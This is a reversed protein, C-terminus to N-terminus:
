LNEFLRLFRSAVFGSLILGNKGGGVASYVNADHKKILEMKKTSPSLYPRFGQCVKVKKKNVSKKQSIRFIEELHVFTRELSSIIRVDQESKPNKIKTGDCFMFNSSNLKLFINQKYPAWTNIAGSSGSASSIKGKGFLTVGWQKEINGRPAYGSATLIEDTWVGACIFIIKGKQFGHNKTQVGLKEIKQVIDKLFICTNLIKKQVNIYYFNEPQNNKTNQLKVTEIGYLEDLLPISISAEKQIKKLWSSKWLGVACKSASMSEQNDVILINSYGKKKLYTATVCGFLGSGIIIVDYM